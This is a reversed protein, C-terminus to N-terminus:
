SDAGTGHVALPGKFLINYYYTYICYVHCKGGWSASRCMAFALQLKCLKNDASKGLVQELSM